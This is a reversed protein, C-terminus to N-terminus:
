LAGSVFDQGATRVRFKVSRPPTGNTIGELSELCIRKGGIRVFESYGKDVWLTETCPKIGVNINPCPAIPRHEPDSDVLIHRKTVTVFDQSPQIDVLGLIHACNLIADETLVLM